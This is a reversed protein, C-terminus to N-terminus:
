ATAAGARRRFSTSSDGPPKRGITLCNLTRPISIIATGVRKVTFENMVHSPIVPVLARNTRSNIYRPRFCKRTGRSVARTMGVTNESSSSRAIRTGISSSMPLRSTM